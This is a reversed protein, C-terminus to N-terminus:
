KTKKPRRNIIEEAKSSIEKLEDASLKADIIKKLLDLKTKTLLM